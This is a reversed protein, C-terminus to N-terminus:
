GSHADDRGQLAFETAGVVDPFYYIPISHALAFEHEGRSGASREWGPLLVLLDCRALIALDAQLWYADSLPGFQDPLWGNTHPCVVAYGLRAVKNAAAAAIGVNLEIGAPTPARYAGAIYAVSQM